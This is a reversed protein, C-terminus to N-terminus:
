PKSQRAVLEASGGAEFVSQIEAHAAELAGARSVFGGILRHDRTVEWLDDRPLIEFRVPVNQNVLNDEGVTPWLKDWREVLSATAPQRGLEIVRRIFRAAYRQTSVGDGPLLGIEVPHSFTDQLRELFQPEGDVMHAILAQLIQEHALVRRELDTNEPPMPKPERCPMSHFIYLCDLRRHTDQPDSGGTRAPSM